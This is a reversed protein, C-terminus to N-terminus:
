GNVFTGNRSNLDTVLIKDQLVTIEAHDKSVGNSSILIDASSNRGIINKGTKLPFTQGAQPGSLIRIGWM